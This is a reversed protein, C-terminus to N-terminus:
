VEEPIPELGMQTLAAQPDDGEIMLIGGPQNLTDLAAQAKAEDVLDVAHEPMEPLTGTASQLFVPKVVTSCVAYRSGDAAQYSAAKFTEFDASSEGLMCALHNADAIMAEPVAITVRHTYETM